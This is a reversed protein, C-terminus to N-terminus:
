NPKTSAGDGCAQRLAEEYTHGHQHWSHRLAADEYAELPIPWCKWAQTRLGEVWSSSPMFAHGEPMLEPYSHDCPVWPVTQCRMSELLALGFYEQKPHVPALHAKWLWDVYEQQSEAYGWHLCRRGMKEKMAEWGEPVREFSKGLVVFQAPIGEALVEDVMAMWDDTGKDWAWRQNWLLVPTEVQALSELQHEPKAWRQFDLGLHMVRCKPQLQQRLQPLQPKPMRKMWPDVSELFADMHHRSNFWIQDSALASSVNLYAYTNDRGNRGDPDDPSWPFTLQNEHFMTVVAVDNWRRPMLGRLQAVDCMDTTLVVDPPSALGEMLPKWTAAAGHMRWKWHRGPLTHLDVHHGLIELSKKLGNAWHAHSGAHFPDLFLINLSGTLTNSKPQRVLAM